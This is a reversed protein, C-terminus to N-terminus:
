SLREGHPQQALGAPSAVEGQSGQQLFEVPAPRQARHGTQAQDALDERVIGVGPSPRDAFSGARGLPRFLSVGLNISKRVEPARVHSRTM